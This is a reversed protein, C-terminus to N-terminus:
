ARKREKKFTYRYRKDARQYLKQDKASVPEEVFGIKTYLHNAAGLKSSTLLFVEKMGLAEAKNLVATMLKKGIGAGQYVPNVAMKSVEYTKGSPILCVTGVVGTDVTAIIIYGGKDIIYQYPDGLVAEDRPEITFHRRLWDTNLAKFVSAHEPQYPTVRLTSLQSKKEGEILELFNYKRTLEDISDLQEMLPTVPLRLLLQQAVKEILRWVPALLILMDEGLPTLSLNKQRRDTEDATICLYQQKQLIDARQRVAAHTMGLIRAAEALSVQQYRQLLMLLVTSAPNLNIGYRQYFSDVEYSFYDSLRRFRSALMLEGITQMFDTM